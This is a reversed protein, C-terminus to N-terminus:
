YVSLQESTGRGKELTLNYYVSPGGRAGGGRFSAPTQGWRGVLCFCSIKSGLCSYIELQSDAHSKTKAILLDTHDLCFICLLNSLLPFLLINSEGPPSSVTSLPRPLLFFSGGM